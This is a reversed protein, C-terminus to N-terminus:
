RFDFLASHATGDDLKLTMRRCTGAWTRSTAWTYTWWGEGSYRLGAASDTLEEVVDVPADADCPVEVSTLSVFSAANPVPVGDEALHWKVPVTRGANVRNLTPAANIPSAFGTFEYPTIEVPITTYSTAGRDDRVFLTVVYSGPAAYTHTVVPGTAITEDDLHWRYSVISGDHDLSASGDVTVTNRTVSSTALAIPEQNVPEPLTVDLTAEEGDLAVDAGYMELMWEGPEPNDVRVIDYTPGTDRTVDPAVTSRTIHRGSPSHLSLEIDSGPWGLGASLFPLMPGVIIPRFVRQGPTVTHTTRNAPTSGLATRVAAAFAEQGQDNPHFSFPSIWPAPYRKDIVVGHMWDDARDECLHHGDFANEVDAYLWSPPKNALIIRNLERVQENMWEREGSDMSWCGVLPAGRDSFFEPYGMVVYRAHEAEAQIKAYVQKLPVVAAVKTAEDVVGDDNVAGYDKVPMTGDSLRDFRHQVYDKARVTGTTGDDYKVEIGDDDDEHCHINKGCHVLVNGFGSDNGGVSITVLSVDGDLHEVQPREGYRPQTMVDATAAGSCAHFYTNPPVGPTGNILRAYAKLSRHCHNGGLIDTGPEFDPVGEGSSFSDGLAVYRGEDVTFSRTASPDGSMGKSDVSQASWTYTGPELHPKAELTVAQDDSVLGPTTLTRVPTGAADKITVTPRYADGQADDGVVEFRHPGGYRVIQGPGPAGLGTVPGTNVVVPTNRVTLTDYRVPTGGGWNVGYWVIESISAAAPYSVTRSQGNVTATVTNTTPQFTMTMLTWVNASWSSFINHQGTASLLSVQNNFNATTHLVVRHGNSLVFHVDSDVNGSTSTNHFYFSVTTAGEIPVGVPTTASRYPVGCCPPDLKLSCSETHRTTCDQSTGAGFSTSTGPEFGDSVSAANATEASLTTLLTAAAAALAVRAHWSRRVSMTYGRQSATGVSGETSHRRGLPHM